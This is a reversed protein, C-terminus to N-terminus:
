RRIESDRYHADRHVGALQQLGDRAPDAAVLDSQEPIQGFDPDGRDRERRSGARTADRGADGPDIETRRAAAQPVLEPVTQVSGPEPELGIDHVRRTERDWRDVFLREDDRHVVDREAPERLDRRFAADGEMGATELERAAM